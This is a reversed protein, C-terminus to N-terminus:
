GWTYFVLCLKKFNIEARKSCFHSNLDSIKTSRKLLKFYKIEKVQIIIEQKHLGSRVYTCM